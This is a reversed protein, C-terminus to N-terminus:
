FGGAFDPNDFGGTMDAEFLIITTTSIVLNCQANGVGDAEGGITPTNSGSQLPGIDPGPGVGTSQLPGIDLYAM